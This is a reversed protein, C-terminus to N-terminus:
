WLELRLKTEHYVTYQISYVTSVLNDPIDFSSNSGMSALAISKVNYLRDSLVYEKSSKEDSFFRSKYRLSSSLESMARDLM